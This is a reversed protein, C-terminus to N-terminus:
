NDTPPLGAAIRLVKDIGWGRTLGMRILEGQADKYRQQAEGKASKISQFRKQLWKAGKKFSFSDYKRSSGRWNQEHSFNTAAIKIEKDSMDPQESVTTAPQPSQSKYLVMFELLVDWEVFNKGKKWSNEFDRKPANEIIWRNAAAKRLDLAEQDSRDETKM